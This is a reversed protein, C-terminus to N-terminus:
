SWRIPKQKLSNTISSITDDELGPLAGLAVHDVPVSALNAIMSFQPQPTKSPISGNARSCLGVGSKALNIFTVDPSSAVKFCSFFNGKM